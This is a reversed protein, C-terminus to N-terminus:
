APREALGERIAWLQEQLPAMEPHDHGDLEKCPWGGVEDPILNNEDAYRWVPDDLEKQKYDM